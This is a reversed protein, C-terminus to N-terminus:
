RTSSIIEKTRFSTGTRDKFVWDTLPHTILLRQLKRFGLVECAGVDSLSQGPTFPHSQIESGPEINENEM